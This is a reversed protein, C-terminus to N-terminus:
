EGKTNVTFTDSNKNQKAHVAVSVNNWDFITAYCYCKGFDSVRGKKIIRSVMSIAVTDPINAQNRIIIKSM